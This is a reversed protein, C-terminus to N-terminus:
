SAKIESAPDVTPAREFISIELPVPADIRLAAGDACIVLVANPAILVKSVKKGAFFCSPCRSPDHDHTPTTM